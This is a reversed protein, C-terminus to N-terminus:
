ARDLDLSAVIGDVTEREVDRVEEVCAYTMFVVIDHNTVFWVRWLLPGETLHDEVYEGSAWDLNGETSRRPSASDVDVDIGRLYGRLMLFVDVKEGPKLPRPDKVSVQLAGPGNPDHLGIPDGDEEVVWTDPLQLRFWGKKVFEKM